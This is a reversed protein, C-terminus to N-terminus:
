KGGKKFNSIYQGKAVLELHKGNVWEDGGFLSIFRIIANEAILADEKRKYMKLVVVSDFVKTKEHAKQRQTLKSTCGVYIPNGDKILLYVSYM